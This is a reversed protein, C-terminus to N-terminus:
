IHELHTPANTGNHLENEQSLVITQFTHIKLIVSLFARKDSLQTHVDWFIFQESM